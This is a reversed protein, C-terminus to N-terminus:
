LCDPAPGFRRRGRLAGGVVAFGTALMVWSAPEPVLSDVSASSLSFSANYTAGAGVIDTGVRLWDPSLAMDRMWVELDPSSPQSTSLWYFDGGDSVNVIPV